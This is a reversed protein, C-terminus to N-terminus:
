HIILVVLIKLCFLCLANGKSGELRLLCFFLLKDPFCHNWLWITLNHLHGICLIIILKSGKVKMEKNIMQGLTFWIFTMSWNNRHGFFHKFTYLWYSMQFILECVRWQFLVILYSNTDSIIYLSFIQWVRSNCIFPM